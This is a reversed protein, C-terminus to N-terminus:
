RPLNTWDFEGAKVGALFASWEGSSFVYPSGGVKTDRLAVSGDELAAVEVCSGLDCFSSVHYHPATM